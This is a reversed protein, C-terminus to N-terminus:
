RWVRERGSARGIEGDVAARDEERGYIVRARTLAMHEWTWADERQYKAFSDVSVALLGQAGSPRLRTDVEYLPGRSTQVSLAAVVRQALRNSRFLTTYPFLTDTRTSRPPRPIM